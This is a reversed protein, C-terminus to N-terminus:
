GSGSDGTSAPGQAVVDDDAKVTPGNESAREILEAGSEGDNHILRYVPVRKVLETLWRVAEERHSRFNVCSKLLVLLSSAPSARLLEPPVRPSYSPFVLASIPSPQRRVADPGLPFVEKRLESLRHIPWDESHGNRVAPTLPFALVKGSTPDLAILDDSLFAWGRKCLNTVLTSKGQRSIGPLVVAGGRHAAAAHLWLLDSRGQVLRQIVQNKLFLLAHGISGEKPDSTDDGSWYYRGGQQHVELRGITQTPEPALMQQFGREVWSLILPDNSRVAVQHGDFGIYLTSSAM